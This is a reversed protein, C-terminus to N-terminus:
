RTVKRTAFLTSGSAGYFDAHRAPAVDPPAPFIQRLRATNADHSGRNARRAHFEPANIIARARIRNARHRRAAGAASSPLLQADLPAVSDRIAPDFPTLSERAGPPQPLPSHRPGPSSRPSPGDPGLNRGRAGRGSGRRVGRGRGGNLGARQSPHQFASSIRGPRWTVGRRQRGM